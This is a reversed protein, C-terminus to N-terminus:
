TEIRKMIWSLVEKKGLGTKASFMRYEISRDFGLGAIEREVRVLEARKLKDCKTLVILLDHNFSRLWEIADLDIKLPFHRVDVLLVCGKLRTRTRFYIEMDHAWREREFKPAKSYGYGPLDALIFRQECLYLNITRTMGPTSSVRAIKHRELVANVFSSKGVNSRGAVAIEPYPLEPLNVGTFSGVFEVKM